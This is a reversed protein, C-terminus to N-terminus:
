ASTGGRARADYEYEHAGVVAVYNDTDLTSRRDAPGPDTDGPAFPIEYVTDGQVM